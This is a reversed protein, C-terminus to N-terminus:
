TPMRWRNPIFASLMNKFQHRGSRFLGISFTAVNYSILTAIAAGIPGYVPILLLNLTINALLGLSTRYLSIKQLGEIVLYHSSAVGFFVAVSAWTHIALVPGAKSFQSGYLFTVINTSFISILLPVSVSLLLFFQYVLRLRYNFMERSESHWNVLSPQLSAMVAMPIFYWIESLRTAVSYLGVAHDGSMQGLMIVDLKLYLIVTIASLLLPWGERLMTKARRWSTTWSTISHGQRRYYVFFLGLASVTAEALGAWAFAILPAQNIILVVRILAGALYAANKAYVTYKSEVIAQFWLSITEAALFLITGSLIATLLIAEHDGPRLAYVTTICMLSLFAGGAIKLRFATGLIEGKKDPERVLDRVINADMGLGAVVGFIGVLALSYNLVGFSNPGLYRALWIGIFFGVIMHAINDAILWSTNNIAQILRLHGTIRRKIASPLFNVWYANAHEKQTM